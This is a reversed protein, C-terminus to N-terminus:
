ANPGGADLSSQRQRPKHPRYPSVTPDGAIWYRWPHVAGAGAVGTRPGSRVHEDFAAEGTM